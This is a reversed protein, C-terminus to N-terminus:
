YVFGLQCVYSWIAWHNHNSQRVQVLNKLIDSDVVDTKYESTQIRATQAMQMPKSLCVSGGIATTARGNIRGKVPSYQFYISVLMSLFFAFGPSLVSVM